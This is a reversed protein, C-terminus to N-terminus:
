APRDLGLIIAIFFCVSACLVFGHWIAMSFRWNEASYFIVGLSYILGGAAILALAPGPLVQALPWILAISLWGLLLYLAPGFRGPARWFALKLVMGFVALVWVVTLVAYAFWGGVFMVIPTYTGAIKLYIFAHDVRRFIPRLRDWPSFHYLASAGFCAILATGYISSAIIASTGFRASWAVLLAAGMLAFSLGLAHITADALREARSYEPYETM